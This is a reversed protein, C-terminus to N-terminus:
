MKELVMILEDNVPTRSGQVYDRLGFWPSIWETVARFGAAAVLDRVCAATYCHPHCPDRVIRKPFVEVALVFRGVPKLVRRIEALTADPSAVHDLVNTCFVVDFFGGPFPIREGQSRRIEIDSPYAYLKVYEHALPDIGFRRGPVYHLVSSIGCGVDLVQSTDTLATLSVIDDFHRYTRWCELVAEKHKRFEGVWERQFELEAELKRRRDARFWHCPSMIGCARLFREFAGTSRGTTKGADSDPM